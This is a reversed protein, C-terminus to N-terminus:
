WRRECAGYCAPASHELHAAAGMYVGSGKKTDEEFREREKGYIFKLRGDLFEVWVFSKRGIRIM